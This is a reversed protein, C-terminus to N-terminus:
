PRDGTFPRQARPPVAPMAPARAPAAAAADTPTDANRAEILKQRAAHCESRLWRSSNPGVHVPPPYRKAKIGRYLTSPNLPRNGGFFACAAGLTMMDEASAVAPAPTGMPGIPAPAVVTPPTAKRSLPLPQVNRM